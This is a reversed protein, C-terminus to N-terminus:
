RLRTSPEWNPLKFCTRDGLRIPPVFFRSRVAIQRRHGCSPCVIDTERRLRAATRTMRYGCRPCILEVEATNKLPHVGFRRNSPKCEDLM